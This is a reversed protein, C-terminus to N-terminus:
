WAPCRAGMKLRGPGAGLGRRSFVKVRTFSGRKDPALEVQVPADPGPAWRHEWRWVPVCPLGPTSAAKWESAALGVASLAEEPTKAAKGLHVVAVALKDDAFGASVGGFGTSRYGSVRDCVGRRSQTVPGEARVGVECSM